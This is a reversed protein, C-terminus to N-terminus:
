SKKFSIRKKKLQYLRQNVEYYALGLADGIERSSKGESNLRVIEVDHSDSAPTVISTPKNKTTDIFESIKGYLQAMDKTTINNNMRIYFNDDDSDRVSVEALLSYSPNAGKMMATLVKFYPDYLEYKEALRKRENKFFGAQENEPKEEIEAQFEEIESVIRVNAAMLEEIRAIKGVYSDKNVAFIAVVSDKEREPEFCQIEIKTNGSM